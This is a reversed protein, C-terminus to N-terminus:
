LKLVEGRVSKIEKNLDDIYERCVEKYLGKKYHEDIELKLEVDQKNILVLLNEFVKKLDNQGENTNLNVSLGDEMEPIEFILTDVGDVELLKVNIIELNTSIKEKMSRM